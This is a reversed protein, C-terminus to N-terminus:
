CSQVPNYAQWACAANCFYLKGGQCDGTFDLTCDSPSGCNSALIIVNTEDLPIIKFTGFYFKTM